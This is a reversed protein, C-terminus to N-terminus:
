FLRERSWTVNSRVVKAPRGVVLSAEPVECGVTTDSGVIVGDGIRAGKMVKSNPAIWVHKGILVDKAPNLRTGGGVSNDYIPHSDSTRIVINNSLMCDSGLEISRGNEQVNLHCRATMTTHDGIVISCDNGEIWLSSDPGIWLHDGLTVTNNSGRIRIRLSRIVCDEGILIRNHSGICDRHIRALPSRCVLSNGRLCRLNAIRQGVWNAWIFLYYNRRLLKKLLAIIKKM